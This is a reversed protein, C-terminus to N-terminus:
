ALRVRRPSEAVAVPSGARACVPTLAAPQHKVILGKLLQSLQVKNGNCVRLFFIHQSYRNPFHSAAPKPDVRAPARRPLALAPLRVHDASGHADSARPSCSLSRRGLLAGATAHLQAPCARYIIDNSLAAADTQQRNALVFLAEVVHLNATGFHTDSIQRLVSM